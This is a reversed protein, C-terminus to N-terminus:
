IELIDPTRLLFHGGAALGARDIGAQTAALLLGMALLALTGLWPPKQNASQGITSGGPSRDPELAEL